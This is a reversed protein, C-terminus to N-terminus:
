KHERLIIDKIIVETDAPNGGFDFVMKVADADIGAQEKLTFVFPEYATIDRRETFLFNGDNTSDTLKFTVQPVDQSLEVTCQFDYKKDASLSIKTADTPIIFFQAQWQNVTETALTFSYSNGSQTIAPNPLQDWSGGTAYYQSYTHGDAADVPKWINDASDYSMSDGGGPSGGSEGTIEKLTLGTVTIETGAPIRGFDFIVMVKEYAQDPVIPEQKYAITEYATLAVGNDYFFAHNSDDNADAVKITCTGDSSSEIACAFSYQKEPDAPVDAVLKVQGQWESGGVGDPVTLTLKGGEFKADPNLGGSWDAPSFWTDQLYLGGLMEEGYSYGSGGGSTGTIEKLEIGSVTIETGAAIRGFDFIVMVKEYAQDPSVPEQKYALKEFATLTVGNDYFFAHNSDDNADALKVTCVGDAGAEITAFFGYQKEPDAPIDAVLKVQGQWESGGVGAPVTLTLKGGEYKAGSDLGGSWDAPSFWTDHLYLGDLLNPGYTYTEPNEPGPEEGGPPVTGDDVAHDKLVINKLVVETDDANGGFDFVMKVAEADIGPLDTLYFIYDENAPIKVRETFLFNGDDTTDTLKLTMGPLEKSTNVIVSFDYHKESTLSIPSEPIIFFQAQWQDTTASPYVLTYSGGDETLEADAIQSWGPAYWQSISHAADAPKWLNSDANYKFGNWTVKGAKSTLIFQWAISGNWAVLTASNNDLSVVYFKTDAIFEDNPIYPFLSGADLKLVLDNGEVSFQYATTAASVPFTFDATESHPGYPSKTVGYNVYVTGADGPDFTYKGDSTFTMRNDYMGFAAKEDPKAAWWGAPNGISEGCAHHADVSNDIRWVKESGASIQRIYRDFSMITNDIHFPKEVYDPSMGNANMIYMRVAYDGATAFIKKFGDRANYSTWEGAGDQLVWVPIVGKEGLTFTVQNTEQDVTVTPNYSSANVIGAETPHEFQEKTCAAFVVAAAM